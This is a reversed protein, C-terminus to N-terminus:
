PGIRRKLNRSEFPQVEGLAAMARVWDFLLPVLGLVQTKRRTDQTLFVNVLTASVPWYRTPLKAGCLHSPVITSGQSIVAFPRRWDGGRVTCAGAFRCKPCRRLGASSRTSAPLAPSLLTCTFVHTALWPRILRTKHMAYNDLIFHVGLPAAVAADGTTMRSGGPKAGVCRCCRSRAARLGFSHRRM